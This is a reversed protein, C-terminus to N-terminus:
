RADEGAGIGRELIAIAQRLYDEDNIEPGYRHSFHARNDLWFLVLGLLSITLYRSDLEARVLGRRQSEEIRRRITEFVDPEGPWVQQDGELRTWACLRLLLPNDGIFAMLRQMEAGVNLPENPDRAADPFKRAYSEVLRRKVEQCLGEKSGFHHHILPHSVGSASSIDRLSTNAFGHEAFLREAAELVASRTGEPDRVRSTEEAM